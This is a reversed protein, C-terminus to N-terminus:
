CREVANRMFAPAVARIAPAYKLVRRVRLPIEFRKEDLGPEFMQPLMFAHRVGVSYHLFLHTTQELALGPNRVQNGGFQIPGVPSAQACVASDTNRAYSVDWM